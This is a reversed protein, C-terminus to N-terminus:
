GRRHRPFGAAVTRPGSARATAGLDDLWDRILACRTFTALEVDHIAVAPAGRGRTTREAGTASM